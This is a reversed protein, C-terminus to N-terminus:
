IIIGKIIIASQIIFCAGEFTLHDSSAVSFISIPLLTKIIFDFQRASSQTFINIKSLVFKKDFQFHFVKAM